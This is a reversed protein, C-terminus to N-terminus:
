VLKKLPFPGRPRAPTQRDVINIKAVFSALDKLFPGTIALQSWNYSHIALYSRNQGTKVVKARRFGSQTGYTTLLNTVFFNSIKFDELTQVYILYMPGTHDMIFTVLKSHCNSLSVSPTVLQFHCTLLSLGLM